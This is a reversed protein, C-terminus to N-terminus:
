TVDTLFIQFGFVEAIGILMKIAYHRAVSIDHVLSNKDRDTHGQVVFRAKRLEKDPGDTKISLVFRANLVNGEEPIESRCVIKCTNRKLLRDIEKRIPEDFLKNGIDGSLLILDHNNKALRTIKKAFSNRM